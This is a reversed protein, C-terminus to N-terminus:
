HAGSLWHLINLALKRDDNGRRNMGIKEQGDKLATLMTAEGLVVVRGAGHQLAVGQGWDKGSRQAGLDLAVEGEKAGNVSALSVSPRAERLIATPSHRLFLTSGEPGQVSQGTFTVVREVREGSWRGETVPHSRLLWNARSYALESTDGFERDFEMEDFSMGLSMRVGFRAGLAEVASGFPFHDTVLLLGGGGRVFGEIADCEAPEFAPAAPDDGPGRAGAIVLVRCTALVESTFRERVREVDYGDNGLLDVFPAYTGRSTHRNAHGEDFAVEPHEIAYAAVPVSTDFDHDVSDSCSPFVALVLLVFGSCHRSPKGTPEAHGLAQPPDDLFQEPETSM